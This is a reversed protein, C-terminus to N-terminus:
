WDILNNQSNKFNGNQYFYVEIKKIGEIMSIDIVKEQKSYFSFSYPDGIMDSSNLCLEYIGDKEMEGPATPLVSYVYFKL